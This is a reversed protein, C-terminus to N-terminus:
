HFVHRNVRLPRKYPQYWRLLLQYLLSTPQQPYFFAFSPRPSFLHIFIAGLFFITNSIIVAPSVTNLSFTFRRSAGATSPSIPIKGLCAGKIVAKFVPTILTTILSLSLNIETLSPIISTLGSRTLVTALVASSGSFM